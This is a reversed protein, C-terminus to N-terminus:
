VQRGDNPPRTNLEGHFMATRGNERLDLAVSTYGEGWESDATTVWKAMDADSSFDWATRYDGDEPFRPHKKLPTPIATFRLPCEDNGCRYLLRRNCHCKKSSKM